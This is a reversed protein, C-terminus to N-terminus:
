VGIEKFILPILHQVNFHSRLSYESYCTVVFRSTSALSFEEVLKPKIENVIIKMTQHNEKLGLKSLYLHILSLDATNFSNVNKEITNLLTVFETNNHLQLVTKNSMVNEKTEPIGSFYHLVKILDWFTVVAQTLQQNNLPSKNTKLIDLVEQISTSNLLNNIVPDKSDPYLVNRVFAPSEEYLTFPETEEDVAEDDNFDHLKRYNHGSSIVSSKNLMNCCKKYSCSVVTTNQFRASLQLLRCM